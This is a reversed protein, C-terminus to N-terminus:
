FYEASQSIHANLKSLSRDHWISKAAWGAKKKGSTVDHKSRHGLYVFLAQRQLTNKGAGSGKIIQGKCSSTTLKPFTM